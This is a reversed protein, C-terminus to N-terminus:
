RFGALGARLRLCRRRGSRRVPRSGARVRAIWRGRKGRGGRCRRAPFWATFGFSALPCGAFGGPCGRVATVQMSPVEAGPNMTFFAILRGTLAIRDEIRKPIAISHDVFGAQAWATSWRSGFRGALVNKMTQLWEDLVAMSAQYTDSALQRASRAANFSNDATSFASLFFTIALSGNDPM